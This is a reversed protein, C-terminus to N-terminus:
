HRERRRSRNSGARQGSVRKGPAAAPTRVTARRASEVRPAPRTAAPNRSTRPVSSTRQRLNAPPTARQGSDARPRVSARSADAAQRQSVRSTELSRRTNGARPTPPGERRAERAPDRRTAPDAAKVPDRVSSRYQTAAREEARRSPNVGAYSGHREVQRRFADRDNDRRLTRLASDRADRQRTVALDNARRDAYGNALRSRDSVTYDRDRDRRYGSDVVRTVPRAGSRPRPRWHDGQKHRNRYYPSANNVYWNNYITVSPRRWYSGYFDYYRGYYPHGNYSHHYVRLHDTAWGISFATTVGWFPRRTLYHHRPYPYYYVPCPDPYYFYVPAASRYVVQEPEYYPVYIVDDSVPEIEITGGDAVTVSQYDDSNLNGAAYARDRFSEVALIVDSQQRVVAEGLQWTWDLDENMMRLVDPYNLLAVVSDDWNEDPQLSPNSEVQELYRAAQVIDLPYTSAPLVIALLDDPYLAVPGILDELEASSLEGGTLAPNEVDVGDLVSVRSGVPRGDDDVPVQGFAATGIMLCAAGLVSVGCKRTKSDPIKRTPLDM